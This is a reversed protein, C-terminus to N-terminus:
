SHFSKYEDNFAFRFFCKHVGYKTRIKLTTLYEIRNLTKFDFVCLSSHLLIRMHFFIHQVRQVFMIDDDRCHKVEIRKRGAKWTIRLGLMNMIM